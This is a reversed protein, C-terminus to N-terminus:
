SPEGEYLDHQAIGIVADIRDGKILKKLRQRNLKVRSRDNEKHWLHVATVAFRGEKRKIGTRMMRIILDSDEYGWGSFEEDSGNVALYDKKWMAMNCGKCSRWAKPRLKRLFGLPLPLLSFSRNSDGNWSAIRWQKQTYEHLPLQKALARETLKERLLVRNGAVLWGPEALKRHQRIFDKRVVIDADIFVLYNGAAKMAAMNRARAVRFGNDEQWAHQLQFSVTQKYQRIFEIMDDSSGDDAIIVSFDQDDQAALANLAMRLMDIRNYTSIIVSIKVAETM